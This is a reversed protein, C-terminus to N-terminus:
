VITFFGLFSRSIWFYTSSDRLLGHSDMFFEKKLREIVTDAITRELFFSSDKKRNLLLKKKHLSFRSHIVYIYLSTDEYLLYLTFAYSIYMLSFSFIYYKYMICYIYFIYPCVCIRAYIIINIRIYTFSIAIFLRINLEEKPTCKKSNM